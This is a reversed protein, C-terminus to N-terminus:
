LRPWRRAKRGSSCCGLASAPPPVSPPLGLSLPLLHDVSLDETSGCALCRHGCAELLEQWDELTFHEGAYGYAAARKAARVERAPV